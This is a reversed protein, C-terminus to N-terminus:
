ASSPMRYRTRDRPSPSTYLLCTATAGGGAGAGVGAPVGPLIRRVATVLLQAAAALGVAEQAQIREKLDDTFAQLNAAANANIVQQVDSLEDWVQDIEAQITQREEDTAAADRLDFLANLNKDYADRLVFFEASV